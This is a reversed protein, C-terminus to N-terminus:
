KTREIIQLGFPRSASAVVTLDHILSDILILQPGFARCLWNVRLQIHRGKPGEVSKSVM